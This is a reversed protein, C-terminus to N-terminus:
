FAVAGIFGAASLSDATFAYGVMQAHALEWPTAKRCVGLGGIVPRKLVKGPKNLTSLDSM